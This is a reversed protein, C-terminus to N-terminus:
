EPVVVDPVVVDLYRQKVTEVVQAQPQAWVEANFIEVEVEGRWGAAEVAAVFPPFDIVGDGMYGRALLVDAPIPMLFDCVQFSAIRDGARAISNWVEPDWWIHFTDVVVGVQETPFPAALDLAQGLTSIVARDAVYMPHLPELALRVGREGAYPAIEALADALRARAGVLDRSGAPLGGAVIVLTPAGLTAAEDIARRNDDIAAARAAPDIATLFGGRCHSTVRLGADRVLKAARDLGHEAVPERWTGIAQLGAAAVGDVLEPLSWGDVTKHNISLRALRADPSTV